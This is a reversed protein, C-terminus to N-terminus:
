REGGRGRGLARGVAALAADLRADSLPSPPEGYVLRHVVAMVLLTLCWALMVDSLFHGGFVIRNLSALLAYIGTVLATALRWRRPVVLALGTLWVASSAEGAVFSCNRACYDTIQWVDVYPASGGFLDVMVPRPRGWYQKLIANVLIGPGLILTSVLFLSARPPILSPRDPRSIKVALSALVAAVVTLMAITNSRRLAIFLPDSALVFGAGPRYFLRSVAIDVEPWILFFVSVAVTAAVLLVIPDRVLRRPSVV